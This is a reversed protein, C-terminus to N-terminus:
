DMMFVRNQIEVAIVENNELYKMTTDLNVTIVTQKFGLGKKFDKM